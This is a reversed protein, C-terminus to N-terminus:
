GCLMFQESDSLRCLHQAHTFSTKVVVCLRSLEGSHSHPPAHSVIRFVNPLENFRAPHASFLKNFPAHAIAVIPLSECPRFRIRKRSRSPLLFVTRMPTAVFCCASDNLDRTSDRM